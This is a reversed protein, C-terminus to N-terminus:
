PTALLNKILTNYEIEFQGNYKEKLKEIELFAENKMLSTKEIEEWGTYKPRPAFSYDTSYLNHKSTRTSLKGTNPNNIIEKVVPHTLFSLTVEPTYRLFDPTGDIRNETYWNMYSNVRETEQWRWENEYRKVYPEGNAMILTGDLKTLGHMISPMQYACCKATTAVDVIKGSEIFEKIDVDVITPTINHNNCFDYAYKTDHANYEGYSIIAVKFPIGATQFVRIMYEGDLGGSFLLTLPSQRQEYIIEAARVCEKHFTDIITRSCPKLNIKWQTGHNETSFYNNFSLDLM